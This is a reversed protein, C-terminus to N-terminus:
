PKLAFVQIEVKLAPAALKAEVCARAPTAGQPVWADWVTNMEAFDAIDVLWIYAHTISRKDTGAEALYRDIKALIDATQGKIDLSTDDAVLGALAVLTGSLPIEVIQSMRPGTHHRKIQM